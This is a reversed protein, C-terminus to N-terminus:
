CACCKRVIIDGATQPKLAALTMRIRRPDPEAAGSVHGAQQDPWEREKVTL